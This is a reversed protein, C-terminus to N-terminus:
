TKTFQKSDTSLSCKCAARSPYFETYYLPDCTSKLEAASIPITLICLVLIILLIDQKM